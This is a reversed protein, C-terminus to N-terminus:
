EFTFNLIVQKDTIDETIIFKYCSSDIFQIYEGGSIVEVKVPYVIDYTSEDIFYRCFFRLENNYFWSGQQPIIHNNYDYFTKWRTLIENEFHGILYGARYDDFNTDDFYKSKNCKLILGKRTDPVMFKRNIFVVGMDATSSVASSHMNRITMVRDPSFPDCNALSVRYEGSSINRLSFIEYGEPVFFGMDSRTFSKFGGNASLGSYACTFEKIKFVPERMIDGNPKESEDSDIIQVMWEPAFLVDITASTSSVSSGTANKVSLFYSSTQDSNFQMNLYDLVLSSSGPTFYSVGVPYYGDPISYGADGPLLRKVGNGAIAGGYSPKYRRLILKQALHEIMGTAM